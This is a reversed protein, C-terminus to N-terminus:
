DAMGAGYLLGYAEEFLAEQEAAAKKRAVRAEKSKESSRREAVRIREADREHCYNYAHPGIELGMMEMLKLITKSGENFVCCAIWTSLEVIKKGSFLHKPVLGWVTSNFSENNNQTNKGLCRNLLDDKTLDEFVPKVYDQVLDSLPPTTHKFNDPSQLYKCWSKDCYQHQPNKDTSIRHYFGAWIANKMAQKDNPNNQIALSYFLSIEKMVKGTLETKKEVPPQAPPPPDNKSRRKKKPHQNWPITKQEM